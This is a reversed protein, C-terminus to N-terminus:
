SYTEAGVNQDPVPTDRLRELRKIELNFSRTLSALAEAVARGHMAVERFAKPQVTIEPAIEDVTEVVEVAHMLYEAGGELVTVRQALEEIMEDYTM